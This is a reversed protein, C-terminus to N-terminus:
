GCQRLLRQTEHHLSELRTQLQEDERRRQVAEEQRAFALKPPPPGLSHLDGDLAKLQERLAAWRHETEHSAQVELLSGVSDLSYLGYVPEDAHRGAGIQKRLGLWSEASAQRCQAEAVAAGIAGFRVASGLGPSAARLRVAFSEEEQEQRGMARESGEVPVAKPPLRLPQHSRERRSPTLPAPATAVMPRQHAQSGPATSPATASLLMFRTPVTAEARLM